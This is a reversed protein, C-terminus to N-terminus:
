LHSINGRGAGADLARVALEAHSPGNTALCVLDVAGIDWLEAPRTLRLAPAPIEPAALAESRRDVVAVVDVGELAALAVLIRRGQPGLGIVATKM